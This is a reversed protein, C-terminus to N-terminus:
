TQVLGSYGAPPGQSPFCTCCPLMLFCLFKALAQTGLRGVIDELTDSRVREWCRLGAVTGQARVRYAGM